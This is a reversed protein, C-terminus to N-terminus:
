SQIREADSESGRLIEVSVDGLPERAPPADESVRHPHLRWFVLCQLLRSSNKWARMKSQTLRRDYALLLPIEGFNWKGPRLRMLIEPMASFGPEQLQFGGDGSAKMLPAKAYARYGCSYDRVGRIPLVIKVLVAFGFSLLQRNWSVGAVVAGRRYRSAIVVDEGFRDMRSLLEAIQQPDHTDDCDMVVLVDEDTAVTLFFNVIGQLAVGLGGNSPPSLVFTETGRHSERVCQATDDTSGDDYFIIQLDRVAGHKILDIRAAEVRSLLPSIAAAENYAPLGVYVVRNTKGETM